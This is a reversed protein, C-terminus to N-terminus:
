PGAYRHIVRTNVACPADTALMKALAPPFTVRLSSVQELETESLVKLDIQHDTVLAGMASDKIDQFEARWLNEGLQTWTFDGALSEPEFPAPFAIHKPGYGAERAFAESMQAVLDPPCGSQGLLEAQGQWLGTKPQIEAASAFAAAGFLGALGARKANRFVSNVM